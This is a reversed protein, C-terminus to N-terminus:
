EKWLVGERSDLSVREPAEVLHERAHVVIINNSLRADDPGDALHGLEDSSDITRGLSM